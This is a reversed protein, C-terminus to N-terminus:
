VQPSGKHQPAQRHELHQLAPFDHHEGRQAPLWADVRYHYKQTPCQLLASSCFCRSSLSFSWWTTRGLFPCHKLQRDNSPYATKLALQCCSSLMLHHLLSFCKPGCARPQKVTPVQPQTPYVLRKNETGKPTIKDPEFVRVKQFHKQKRM